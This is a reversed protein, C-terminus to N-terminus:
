KRMNVSSVWVFDQNKGKACDGKTLKPTSRGM